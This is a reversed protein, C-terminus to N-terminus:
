RRPWKELRGREPWLNGSPEKSGTAQSSDTPGFAKRGFVISSVRGSSSARFAYALCAWGYRIASIHADEVYINEVTFRHEARAGRAVVGFDYTTYDFMKRAWDQGAGSQGLNGSLATEMASGNRGALSASLLICCIVVQESM